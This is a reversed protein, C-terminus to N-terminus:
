LVKSKSSRSKWLKLMQEQENKTMNCRVMGSADFSKEHTIPDFHITIDDAVLELTEDQNWFLVNDSPSSSMTISSQAPSYTLSDCYAMEIPTESKDTILLVNGSLEIRKVERQPESYTMKVRDAYVAFVENTYIISKEANYVESLRNLHSIGNNHFEHENLAYRIAGKTKIHSVKSMEQHKQKHIEVQDTADLEGMEVGSLSIDDNLTLVEHTMDYYAHNAAFKINPMLGDIKAIDIANNESDYEIAQAIFQLSPSEFQCMEKHLDVRLRPYTDNYFTARDGTLRYDDGLRAVVHGFAQVTNVHRDSAMEFHISDSTLSFPSASLIDRYTVVGNSTKFDGVMKTFDFHALGCDLTGGKELDIHVDNELIARSFFYADKKTGKKLRASDAILTGMPHEVRVHGELCLLEKEYGITDSTIEGAAFLSLPLLYLWFKM